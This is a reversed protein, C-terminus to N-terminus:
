AVSVQGPGPSLAAQSPLLPMGAASLRKKLVSLSLSQWRQQQETGLDHGVRQLEMSPLM